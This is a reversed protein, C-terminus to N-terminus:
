KKNDNKIAKGFLKDVDRKTLFHSKGIYKKNKNITQIFQVTNEGYNRKFHLNIIDNPFELIIDSIPPDILAKQIMQYLEEVDNNINKFNFSRYTNLNAENTDQYTITYSNEKKFLGVSELKGVPALEINKIVKIQSSLQSSLFLIGIFIFNKKM